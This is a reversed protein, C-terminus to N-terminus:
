RFLISEEKGTVINISSPSYFSVLHEVVPLSKTAKANKYKNQVNMTTYYSRIILSHKTFMMMM